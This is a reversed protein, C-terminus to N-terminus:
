LLKILFNFQKIGVEIPMLVSKSFVIFSIETMCLCLISNENKVMERKQGEPYIKELFKM